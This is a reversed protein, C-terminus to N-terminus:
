KKKRRFEIMCEIIWERDLRHLHFEHDDEYKALLADAQSREEPYIEERYKPISITEGYWALSDLDKDKLHVLLASYEMGTEYYHQIFWRVREEYTLRIKEPVVNHIM